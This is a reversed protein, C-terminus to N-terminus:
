NFLLSINDDCLEEGIVIVVEQGLSIERIETKLRTANVEYWRDNEKTFGKVRLVKGYKEDTFLLNIRDELVSSSMGHELFCLSRFEEGTRRIYDANKYGSCLVDAMDSDDLDDWPKTVFLQESDDTIGALTNTVNEIEENTCFQTKSLIIRGARAIQSKLMNLEKDTFSDEDSNFYDSDCKAFSECATSDVIAIVNGIEYWNCLPEDYLSDFFEDVDFIGSPEVIVRTYDDMGMAILKTKFRRRHCDTDCGGAVMELECSDSILDSLLMVDVNVAGLDNELICVKEGSAMLYSVYKRLFTTKGAGLFGTILDIKKM